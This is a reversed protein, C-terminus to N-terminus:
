FSPQARYLSSDTSCLLITLRVEDTGERHEEEEENKDLKEWDVNGSGSSKSSVLSISRERALKPHQHPDTADSGDRAHDPSPSGESTMISSRPSLMEDQDESNMNHGDESDM